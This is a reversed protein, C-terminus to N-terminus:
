TARGETYFAGVEGKGCSGYDEMTAMVTHTFCDYM